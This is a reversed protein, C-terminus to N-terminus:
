CSIRGEFRRGGVIMVVGNLRFDFGINAKKAGVELCSLMGPYFSLVLFM